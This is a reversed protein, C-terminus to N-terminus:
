KARSLVTLRADVLTLASDQGLWYLRFTWTGPTLLRYAMFSPYDNIVTTGRNVLFQETSGPPIENIQFQHNRTAAYSQSASMMIVAERNESVTVSVQCVLQFAGNGPMSSGLGATAFTTVANNSIKTTGVVLDQVQIANTILAETVSLKTATIAGAAIEAASIAGAAIKGATIANAAIKASTIANAAIENATVTGAKIAGGEITTLGGAAWPALETANALAEGFFLKTAFVYPENGGNGQMVVRFDAQAASAPATVVIGRALYDAETLGAGGGTHNEVIATTSGSIPSGGATFWWVELYARCRHAQLLGSIQYRRGGVVPTLYGDPNWAAYGFYSAARTGSAYLALSGYQRLRWPEVAAFISTLGLQGWGWTSYPACSNAIQNASGVALKETTVAGAAIKATEVASAAIKTATIAGDVILAGNARMQMLPRGFAITASAGASRVMSIEAAAAGAPPTVDADYATGALAVASAHVETAGLYTGDGAFWDVYVWRGLAATAYTLGRIRYSRDPSVTFRRSRINLSGTGYTDLRRSGGWFGDSSTNTQWAWTNTGSLQGFSWAADDAMAGDPVVNTEDMIALKSATIAGAALLPTTVAGSAIQSATITNAAIRDATVAGAQIAATYISGAAIENASVSNALLRDAAVSRARVMGGDISTAGGPDWEAVETANPATVGIMAKSLFLYPDTGGNGELVVRFLATGAAGPATAVVSSRAYQTEFVAGSLANNEVTNGTAVSITAGASDIWHIEVRGRCRHAQFLAAAQVRQRGAVSIGIIASSPRWDAIVGQGSPVAVGTARLYGSGVGALVWQSGFVSAAGFAPSGSWSGFKYVTWGTSGNEWTGNWCQNSSAVALKGTTVAGSAIEGATVAGAAIKATTVSGAAIETATVANAAINGAVVAGAALKGAVIAGAQIKGATVADAAIENATVASATLKATTISGDVILSADAAVQLIVDSVAAAGSFATGAQNYVVLRWYAAGNPVAIQLSKLLGGPNGEGPTWALAAGSVFTGAANFLQIEVNINQNSDNRAEARLRLTQGPTITASPHTAPTWIHRRATSSGMAGGSWITASRAVGMALPYNGAAADEFYWGSADPVWWAADRFQPDPNLNGTTLTLRSATIAGAVVKAGVV